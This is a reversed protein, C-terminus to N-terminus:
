AVPWGVHQPGTTRPKVAMMVVGRGGSEVVVVMLTEVASGM